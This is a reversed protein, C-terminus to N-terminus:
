PEICRRYFNLYVFRLSQYNFRLVNDFDDRLFRTNWAVHDETIGTIAKRHSLRHESSSYNSLLFRDSSDGLPQPQVFTWQLLRMVFRISHKEEKTWGSNAFCFQC